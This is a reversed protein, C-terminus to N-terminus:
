TVILCHCQEGGTAKREIYGLDVMKREPAQQTVVDLSSTVLMM